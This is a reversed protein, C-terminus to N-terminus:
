NEHKSEFPEFPIIKWFMLGLFNVFVLWSMGLIRIEDNQIHNSLNECVYLMKLLPSVVLARFLNRNRKHTNLSGSVQPSFSYYVAELAEILAKGSHAKLVRTDRIEKLYQVEISLPSGFCATM